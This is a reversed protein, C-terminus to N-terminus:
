ATAPDGISVSTQIGGLASSGLKVRGGHLNALDSAIALGIGTGPVSRDLRVGGALVDDWRTEPIGPGDDDVTFEIAGGGAMVTINIRGRAWKRANDLLNGLLEEMDRQDIPAVLDTPDVKLRWEIEDGRPLRKMVGLLRQLVPEIPTRTGIAKRPGIARAAAIVRAIHANMQEIESEIADAATGDGRARLARCEAAVVALPTKLSHGLKGANARAREVEHSQAAMLRNLDDVLGDIETPFSGDIRELRGQRLDALKHRLLALPALGTGVQFWSAVALLAGIVSLLTAATTTFEDSSEEIVHNEGAVILRLPRAPQGELIVVREVAILPQKRPGTVDSIRRQGTGPLLAPMALANDWLSKSRLVSNSGDNVQWYRGSLPKQFTENYLEHRLSVTGAADIQALAALQHVQEDLEEVYRKRVHTEFAAILIFAAVTLAALMGIMAGLLLRLKLSNM